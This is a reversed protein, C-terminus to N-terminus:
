KARRNFRSHLSNSKEEDKKLNTESEDLADITIEALQDLWSVIENLEKDKLKETEKGLFKRCLNINLVNVGSTAM